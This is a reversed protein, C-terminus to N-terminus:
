RVEYILKKTSDFKYPGVEVYKIDNINMATTKLVFEGENNDDELKYSIKDTSDGKSNYFKFTIFKEKAYLMDEFPSLTKIVISDNDKTVSEINITPYSGDINNYETTRLVQNLPALEPKFDKKGCGVFVTSIIGICIIVGIIKKM